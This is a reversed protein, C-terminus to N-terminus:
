RNRKLLNKPDNFGVNAVYKGKPHKPEFYESSATKIPEQENDVGSRYESNFKYTSYGVKIKRGNPPLFPTKTYTITDNKTDYFVFKLIGVDRYYRERVICDDGFLEKVIDDTMQKFKNEFDKSNNVYKNYESFESNHYELWRKMNKFNKVVKM